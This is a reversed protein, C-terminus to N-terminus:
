LRGLDKLHDNTKPDNKANELVKAAADALKRFRILEPDDIHNIEKFNERLAILDGDKDIFVERTIVVQRNEMDFYMDNAVYRLQDPYSRGITNATRNKIRRKVLDVYSERLSEDVPEIYVTFNFNGNQPYKTWFLNFNIMDDPIYARIKEDSYILIPVAFGDPNITSYMVLPYALAQGCFLIIFLFTLCTRKM